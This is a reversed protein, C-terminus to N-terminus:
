QWLGELPSKISAINNATVHTYIMTTKINSHGLLEQVYRIDTGQELCHTAFSHRLGHIGGNRKIRAEVCAHEFVKQITRIGLPEHSDHVGFVYSNDSPIAMTEQLATGISASLMVARDRGGKGRRVWILGRAQDIDERKLHAIESVRLGCGYAMMLLLRHKLNHAADIIRRIESKAYVTPLKRPEKMRPVTALTMPRGIVHLFFFRLAAGALNVTSPELDHTVRLEILWRGVDDTTASLPNGQVHALFRSAAAGYTRITRPSYNRQLLERRLILLFCGPEINLRVGLVAHLARLSDRSAPVTWHCREQVWRRGAISRVAEVAGLEYAFSVVFLGEDHEALTVASSKEDASSM